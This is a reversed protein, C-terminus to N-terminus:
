IMLNTMRPIWESGRRRGPPKLGERESRGSESTRPSSPISMRPVLFFLFFSSLFFPFRPSLRDEGIQPLQGGGPSAFGGGEQLEIRPLIWSHLLSFQFAHIWSTRRSADGRRLLWRMPRYVAVSSVKSHFVIATSKM